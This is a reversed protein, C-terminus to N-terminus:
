KSGAVFTSKSADFSDIIGQKILMDAIYQVKAVDMKPEMVPITMTEAVEQSVGAVGPLWQRFEKEKSAIDNGAEYMATAFAETTVPNSEVFKNSAVFTSVPLKENPGETLDVVKRLGAELAASGFPEPMYGAEISNAQVGSIMENFPVEVWTPKTDLNMSSALSQFSVDGINNTTNIGVTKGDLDGIDQIPSDPTVYVGISGPGVSSTLVVTTVPAGGNIAQTSSMTNSFSFDIEGSAVKQVGIPGGQLPVLEVDLGAKEFFGKDKAWYVAGYDALPMVGVKVAAKELAGPEAPAENPGGCSSLALALIGTVAAIVLRNKKM